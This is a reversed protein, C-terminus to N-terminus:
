VQEAKDFAFNTFRDLLLEVLSESFAMLRIDNVRFMDPAKELKKNDLVVRDIGIAIGNADRVIECLKENIADFPQLPCVFRYDQSHINGLHNILTFPWFDVDGINFKNLEDVVDSSVMLYNSTNSIYSGLQTHQPRDNDLRMTVEYPDDPYIDKLSGGYKLPLKNGSIGEPPGDTKCYKEKRVLGLPKMLYYQM